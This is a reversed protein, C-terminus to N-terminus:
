RAGAADAPPRSETRERPMVAALYAEAAEAADADSALVTAVYTDREFGIVVLDWVCVSEPGRSPRWVAGTELGRVFVRLPLENENDWWGLVCYLATRGQHAIVFGVGPRGPATAPRPLAADVMALAPAFASWDIPKAAHAISYVKLRWGDVELLRHFRTPRPEYPEMDAILPAGRPADFPRFLLSPLPFRRREGSVADAPPAKARLDREV